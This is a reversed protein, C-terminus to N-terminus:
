LLGGLLGGVFGGGVPPLSPPTLPPALNQEGAPPFLNGFLSEFPVSGFVTPM